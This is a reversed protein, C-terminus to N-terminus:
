TLGWWSVAVVLQLHSDTPWGTSEWLSWTSDWLGWTSDWFAGLLIGFARLLIVFAGHLRRTHVYVGLKHYLPVKLAWSDVVRLTEVDETVVPRPSHSVM